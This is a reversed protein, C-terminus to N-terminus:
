EEEDRPGPETGPAYYGKGVLYVESSEKRSAPPSYSRVTSFREKMEDRFTVFDEGEFIKAVFIGGHMLTQEAFKLANHCLWYSQAQDLSYNGSINPSMDSIIVDVTRGTRGSREEVREVVKRVTNEKTVDGRVFTAGLVPQITDLDVGVVLGGEGVEEVAVQTWGGPAAGLDVVVQGKKFVRFREHIQKLKYASRARYGVKKASRYFPDKKRERQWSKSM